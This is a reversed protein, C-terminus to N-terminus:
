HCSSDSCENNRVSGKNHFGFWRKYWPCREATANVYPNGRSNDQMTYQSSSCDDAFSASSFLVTGVALAIGIIITSKKM